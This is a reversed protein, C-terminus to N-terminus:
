VTTAVEAALSTLLPPCHLHAATNPNSVSVSNAIIEGMKDFVAEPAAGTRPLFDPDILASLAAPSKGGYARDPMSSCLVEVVRVMLERYAAKSSSTNTLFESEFM